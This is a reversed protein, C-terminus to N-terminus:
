TDIITPGGSLAHPPAVDLEVSLMQALKIIERGKDSTELVKKLLAQKASTSRKKFEKIEEDLYDLKDCAEHLLKTNERVTKMAPFDAELDKALVGAEFCWCSQRPAGYDSVGNGIAMRVWEVRTKVVRYGSLFSPRTETGRRERMRGRSVEVETETAYKVDVAIYPEKGHEDALARIVKSFRKKLTTRAENEIDRLTTEIRLKLDLCKSRQLEYQNELKVRAEALCLDLLENKTVRFKIDKIGQTVLAHEDTATKQKKM